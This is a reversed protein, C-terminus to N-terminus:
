ACMLLSLRLSVPEHLWHLMHNLPLISKHLSEPPNAGCAHCLHFAPPSRRFLHCRASHCHRHLQRGPSRHHGCLRAGQAASRHQDVGPHLHHPDPLLGDHRLVRVVGGCLAHQAGVPAVQQAVSCMLVRARIQERRDMFLVSAMVGFIVSM